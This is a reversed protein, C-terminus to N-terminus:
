HSTLRTEAGAPPFLGGSWRSRGLCGPHASCWPRTLAWLRHNGVEMRRTKRKSKEAQFTREQRRIDLNKKSKCIYQLHHKRVIFFVCASKSFQPVLFLFFTTPWGVMWICGFGGTEPWTRWRVTGLECRVGRKCISCVLSKEWRNILICWPWVM